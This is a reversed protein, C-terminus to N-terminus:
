LTLSAVAHTCSLMHYNSAIYVCVCESPCSCNNSQVVTETMPCGPVYVGFWMLLVLAVAALSLILGVAVLISLCVLLCRRRPNGEEKFDPEIETEGAYRPQRSNLTAPHSFTNGRTEYVPNTTNRRPGPLPPPHHVSNDPVVDYEAQKTTDTSVSPHRIHNSKESVMQYEPNMDGVGIGGNWVGNSSMGDSMGSVTSPTSVLRNLEFGSGQNSM